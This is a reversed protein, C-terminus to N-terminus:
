LTFNMHKRHLALKIASLEKSPKVYSSLMLKLTVYAYTFVLIFKIKKVYNLLFLSFQLM